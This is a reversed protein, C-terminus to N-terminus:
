RRGGDAVVFFHSVVRAVEVGLPRDLYDGEITFDFFDYREADREIAVIFGAFPGRGHGLDSTTRVADGIQFTSTTENTM